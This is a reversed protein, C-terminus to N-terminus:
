CKNNNRDFSIGPRAIKQDRTCLCVETICSRQQAIEIASLIVCVTPLVMKIASSIFCVNPTMDEIAPWIDCSTPLTGAIASCIVYALLMSAKLAFSASWIDDEIYSWIVCDTTTSSIFSLEM